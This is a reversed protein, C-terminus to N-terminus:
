ADDSGVVLECLWGSQARAEMLTDAHLDIGDHVACNWSFVFWSTTHSEPRAAARVATQLNSLNSRMWKPWLTRTDVTKKSTDGSEVTVATARLSPVTRTNVKTSEREETKAERARATKAESAKAETCLM